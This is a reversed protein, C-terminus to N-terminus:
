SLSSNHFNKSHWWIMSKKSLTIKSKIQRFYSGSVIKLLVHLLSAKNLRKSKIPDSQLKHKQSFYEFEEKAMSIPTATIQDDHIRFAAFISPVYHFTATKSLEIWCDWDMARKLDVDFTFNELASRRMFTSCSSIFCGYERLVTSSFFHAPTLRLFKGSEDVFVCDGYVVDANTSDFIQQVENLIGPMYFDDTNLWGIYKGNAHQMAQNLGDSLGFDVQSIVQTNPAKGELRLRNIVDLTSDSSFADKIVHELHVNQANVSIICGEIYKSSNFSPTVITFVPPILSENSLPKM